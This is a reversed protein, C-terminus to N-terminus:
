DFIVVHESKILPNTVVCPNTNLIEIKLYDKHGYFIEAVKINGYKAKIELLKGVVDDITQIAEM